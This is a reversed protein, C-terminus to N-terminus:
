CLSFILSTSFGEISQTLEDLHPGFKKNFVENAKTKVRDDPDAKLQIFIPMEFNGPFSVGSNEIKDLAFIKTESTGTKLLESIEEKLKPDAMKRIPPAALLKEIEPHNKILEDIEKNKESENSM